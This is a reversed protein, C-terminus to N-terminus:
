SVGLPRRWLRRILVGGVKAARVAVRGTVVADGVETGGGGGSDDDKDVPAMTPLTMPLSAACARMMKAAHNM